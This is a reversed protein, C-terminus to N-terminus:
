QANGVKGKLDTIKQALGEVKSGPPRVKEVELYTDLARRTDGAKEYMYGLRLMLNINKPREAAPIDDYVAKYTAAAKQAERAKDYAEGLKEMIPRIEAMRKLETLARVEAEYIAVAAKYDGGRECLDAIKTQLNKRQTMVQAALQEVPEAGKNKAEIARVQRQVAAYKGDFPRLQQVFGAILAKYERFAKTNLRGAQAEALEDPKIGLVNLAKQQTAMMRNVLKYEEEQIAFLRAQLDTIQKVLAEPLPPPPPTPPTSGAPPKTGSPQGPQPGPTAQALPGTQVYIKKQLADLTVVHRQFFDIGLISQDGLVFRPGPLAMDGLRAEQPVAIVMGQAQETKGRYSSRAVISLNAGTDVIFDVKEGDVAGPVVLHRAFLDAPLEKRGSLDSPRGFVLCKSGYDLTVPMALLVDAGLIGDAPQGLYQAMYELGIIRVDFNTFDTAGVKLSQVRGLKAEGGGVVGVTLVTRDLGTKAAFEPTVLTHPAGTGLVFRGAVGNLTVTALLLTSKTDVELTVRPNDGPVVDPELKMPPRVPAPAAAPGPAPGPAPNEEGRAATLLLASAAAVLFFRQGRAM